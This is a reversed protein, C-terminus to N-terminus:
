PIAEEASGSIWDGFFIENPTGASTTEGPTKDFNMGLGFSGDFGATSYQASLTDTSSVSGHTLAPTAITEVNTDIKTPNGDMPNPSLTQNIGESKISAASGFNPRYTYNVGQPIPQGHSMNMFM